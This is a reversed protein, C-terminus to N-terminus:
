AHFWKVLLYKFLAWLIYPSPHKKYLQIENRSAMLRIDHPMHARDKNWGRCHYAVLGPDYILTWGAKRLRVSLEIDEKYMFFEPDFISPTYPELAERRCVMLAGCVAPIGSMVRYKANVLERGQDRDYWRGYWARFVGTSDVLGTKRKRAPDFGLLTGSVVACSPHRSLVDIAKRLYGDPLFTDPNLFVIIESESCCQLYGKNNAASFGINLQVSLKFDYEKQLARLYTKNESGSDVVIVELEVGEQVKLGELCQPVVTESNHAVIIASVKPLM